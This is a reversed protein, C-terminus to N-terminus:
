ARLWREYIRQRLGVPSMFVSSRMVAHVMAMVFSKHGLGHFYRQLRFECRTYELGGRRAYMGGGIRAQVLAEPTNMVRAGQRIMAVWLAYDEMFQLAPYGGLSIALRTRFCVTMHNFPNRRQSYAVIDEHRLPVRRSQHPPDGQGDFEDIQAGLVDFQGSLMLPLQVEIRNPLCLDDTDFRMVWPSRVEKLGENLAVALGSNQKLQVTRIRLAVRWQDIVGVLAAGIPGDVVLLLEDMAELQRMAAMSELAKGFYQPSEKAYVSMLVTFM